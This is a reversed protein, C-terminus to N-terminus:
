WSRSGGDDHCASTCSSGDWTSGPSFYQVNRAGDLHSPGIVNSYDATGSHCDACRYGMQNVHMDHQGSGPPNGHCGTCGLEGGTWVPTAGSGLTSGHCYTTCTGTSQTYSGLNAPLGGTGTLVV